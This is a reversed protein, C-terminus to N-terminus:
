GSKVQTSNYRDGSADVLIIFGRDFQPFSLLPRSCLAVKVANLANLAEPEYVWVDSIDAKMKPPYRNVIAILPAIMRTYDETHKSLWVSAGISTRLAMVDPPPKTELVANIKTADPRIGQKAVVMHGLFPLLKTNWICKSPKLHMNNAIPRNLVKCVHTLHDKEETSYVVNDDIWVRCIKNLLGVEDTATPGLIRQYCRSFDASACKLGFPMRLFSFLNCAGRWFGHFSLYKQDQQRVKLGWFGACIDFTSYCSAESLSDLVEDMQPMALRDASLQENLGRFDIATRIGAIGTVPDPKKKAFGPVTAWESDGFGVIGNKLM